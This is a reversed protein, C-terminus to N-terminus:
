LDLLWNQGVLDHGFSHHKEEEVLHFGAREYIRRADVLVDNTWLMMQKYGARKAFRICEDVLRTGLGMGRGSPEVLLIRLQAIDDDKRMCFICGVREGAAEAIWAAERKPHQHDVYDAVIRAVLAEFTEDWGYEQAYLEGHRKVVWGYDGSVPARLVLLPAGQREGLLTEIEALSSMLRAQRDDGLRSLLEHVQQSSREDLMKFAQRGEKTLSVIQRRADEPPSQADVLRQQKLRSLVRSVYGLNLHLKEALESPSGGDSTGLEFLIRSETLTHRTDLLGERLLGLVGTYFRNFSRLRSVRAEISLLGSRAKPLWKTTKPM